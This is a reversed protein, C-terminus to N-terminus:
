FDFRLQLDLRRNGGNGGGALGASHGFLPSTLNGDPPGFNPHNITNRATVMLILEKPDSSPKKGGIPKEGFSFTRSFRVQSAVLGPGEAYNRPIITQGAIPAVDFVGLLTRVV